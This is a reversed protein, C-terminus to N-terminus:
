GRPAEKSLPLELAFVSGQGPGASSANLEGRMQRALQRAIYLGLGSGHEVGTGEAREFPEFLRGADKPEFGRGADRVELRWVPGRTSETLEVKGGGYKRANDLLNELVVRVADRDCSIHVPSGPVWRVEDEPFSRRRHEVIETVLQAASADEQRASQWAVARQYALTTEVLHELRDCEALGQTIFRGQLEAPIAGNGLSQLLARVGALPTKLQHASLQLLVRLRQTERRRQRAVGFLVIALVVFLVGAVASEGSIMFLQRQTHRDLDTIRRQLEAGDFNGSIHTRLLMDSSNINRRVLVSWWAMLPGVSLLALAFAIVDLHRAFWRRSRSM